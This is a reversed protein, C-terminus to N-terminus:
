MHDTIFRMLVNKGADTTDTFKLTYYFINEEEVTRSAIIDSTINFKYEMLEFSAIYERNYELAQPIRIVCEYENLRFITAQKEDDDEVPSLKVKKLIVSIIVNIYPHRFEKERIFNETIAVDLINDQLRITRTQAVYEADNIRLIHMRIMQENNLESIYRNGSFLKLSISVITMGLVTAIYVRNSDTIFYVIQEVEIESMSKLPKRFSSEQYLKEYILVLDRCIAALANEQEVHERMFPLFESISAIFLDRNTLLSRPNKLRLMKVMNNLIKIQFNSLGRHKMQFLFLQYEHLRKEQLSKLYRTLIFIGLSLLLGALIILSKTPGPVPWSFGFPTKIDMCAEQSLHQKLM